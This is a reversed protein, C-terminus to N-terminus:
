STRTKLFDLGEVVRVVNVVNNRQMKLLELWEVVRVAHVMKNTRTKLFELREVVRVVNAHEVMLNEHLVVRVVVVGAHEMVLDVYDHEMYVLCAVNGYFKLNLSRGTRRTWTDCLEM